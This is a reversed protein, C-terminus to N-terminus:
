GGEGKKKTIYKKSNEEGRVRGRRKKRNKNLFIRRGEEEGM